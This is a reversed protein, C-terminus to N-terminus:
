ATAEALFDNYSILQIGRRALRERTDPSTLLQLEQARSHRLRTNIGALEADTYAPHCVLEWTGDPTSDILADLFLQDLYGTEVIGLSGDPTALGSRTVMKRFSSFAAARLVQVQVFRKMLGPNHLMRPPRARANVFPNRLARVGCARAARLVPALVAAFMHTHKHADLHSVSIGSSQLKRIQATTEAEIHDAAIKGALAALVFSSL